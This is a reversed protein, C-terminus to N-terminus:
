RPSEYSHPPTTAPGVPGSRRRRARSSGSTSNVWQNTVATIEPAHAVLGAIFKTAVNSLGYPGNGIFANHDDAWLSLHTHM